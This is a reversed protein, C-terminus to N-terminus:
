RMQRVDAGVARGVCPMLSIMTGISVGPMSTRGILSMVVLRCKQSTNKVSTRTGALLRTPDLAIRELLRHALELV